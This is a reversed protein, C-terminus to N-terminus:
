WGRKAVRCEASGISTMAVTVAVSANACALEKRENHSKNWYIESERPLEEAVRPVAPAPAMATAGM